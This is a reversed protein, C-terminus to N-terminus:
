INDKLVEKWIKYGEPLMHLMDEEFLDPRSKGKSNLMPTYIDIYSINTLNQIAKEVLTNSKEIESQINDKSPSPKISMYIIPLDIGYKYRIQRYLSEFYFVIDEAKQGGGLDNDGAYIVIKQPSVVEEFLVHFYLACAELTSGGFGMNLIANNGVDERVTTWLRFSSSGYFIIPHEITPQKRINERLEPLGEKKYFQIEESTM